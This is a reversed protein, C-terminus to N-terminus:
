NTGEPTVLQVYEPFVSRRVLDAASEPHDLLIALAVRYRNREHLLANFEADKRRETGVDSGIVDLAHDFGFLVPAFREICDRDAASTMDVIVVDSM